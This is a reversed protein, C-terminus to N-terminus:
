RTTDGKVLMAPIEVRQPTEEGRIRKMLLGVIAKVMESVNQHVTTLKPHTEWADLVGDYGIIQMDQPVRLGRERAVHYAASALMDSGTFLADTEPYRAFYERM